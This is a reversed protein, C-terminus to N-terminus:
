RSESQVTDIPTEDATLWDCVCRVADAVKEVSVSFDGLHRSSGSEEDPKIRQVPDPSAVDGDIAIRDTSSENRVFVFRGSAFYDRGNERGRRDYALNAAKLAAHVGGDVANLFDAIKM